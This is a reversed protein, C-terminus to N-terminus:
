KHNLKGLTKALNARKETKKGFEGKRAEALFSKKITGKKTEGGHEKATKTLSGKKKVADAIWNAM